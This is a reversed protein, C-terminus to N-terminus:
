EKEIAERVSDMWCDRLIMQQRIQFNRNEVDTQLKALPQSFDPAEGNKGARQIMSKALPSENDVFLEDTASAFFQASGPQGQRAARGVLQRDIRKSANPSLGVVHLGGASMGKEDLKIDTGRGAMNTAITIAGHKGAQAVIDAEEADQVGNLVVPTLGHSQLARQAELSEQITRTGILIPQGTEHRQKTDIAIAELKSDLSDFFRTKFQKRLCKKNTPIKVVQCRYVSSFEATVSAATGTLGALGDYMQLYRQRTIQATSERGPQIPVNEKAEMAQHLGDQWTRDPAIRGTYQDVIQVKDDVVVYDVNKKFSEIAKVANSIYIRWPRSLQIRENAVADHARAYAEDTIIVNKSPLETQYEEGQTFKAVIKKALLYPTPDEHQKMPLSIVLPTMAEDIMVSDAEDILAAHHQGSQLM